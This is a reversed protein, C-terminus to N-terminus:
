KTKELIYENAINKVKQLEDKTESFKFNFRDVMKTIYDNEKIIQYSCKFNIDYIFSIFRLIQDVESKKYRNKSLKQEYFSEIMKEALKGEEIEQIREPTQWYIDIAEYMLDLKDADKIIKSFLEEEKSLGESLAYQNHELIATYIIQDYKDDEIYKRIYNDKKLVKVGEKGHDFKKTIDLVKLDTNKDFIKYQEFRGIDHLVGILEALEIEEENLGLEIAIKKCNEAVRMTHWRKIEVRPNDLKMSDIHNMLEIKAEKIDIMRLVEHQITDNKYNLKLLNIDCKFRDRFAGFFKLVDQM